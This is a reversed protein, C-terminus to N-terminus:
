LVTWLNLICSVNYEMQFVIVESSIVPSLVHICSNSIQGCTNQASANKEGSNAFFAM